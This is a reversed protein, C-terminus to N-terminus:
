YVQVFQLCDDIGFEILVIWSSIFMSEERRSRRSAANLGRFVRPARFVNGGGADSECASSLAKGVFAPLMPLNKTSGRIAVHNAVAATSIQSRATCLKRIDM